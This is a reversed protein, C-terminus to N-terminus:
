EDWDEESDEPWHDLADEDCDIPSGCVPCYKVAAESDVLTIAFETECEDCFAEVEKM